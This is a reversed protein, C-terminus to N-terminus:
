QLMLLSNRKKAGNVTSSPLIDMLHHYFLNGELGDDDDDM